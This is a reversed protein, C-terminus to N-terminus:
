HCVEAPREGGWIYAHTLFALLSYARQWEPEEQLHVTDLIPLREIKSRIRRSRILDPLDEVLREWPSYCSQPLRQLPIQEPLFGHRATTTYRKLFDEPRERM